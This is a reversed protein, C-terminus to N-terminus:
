GVGSDGPLHIDMIIVDPCSNRALDIASEGNTAEAVVIMDPQEEIADRLGQRTVQRDEVLLLRTATGDKRLDTGAKNGVYGPALMAAGKVPLLLIARSIFALRTDSQERRPRNGVTHDEGLTEGPNLERYHTLFSGEAAHFGM